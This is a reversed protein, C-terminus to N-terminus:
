LGRVEGRLDKMDGRLGKVEEVLDTRLADNSRRVEHILRSGAPDIDRRPGKPFTGSPEPSGNPPTPVPSM